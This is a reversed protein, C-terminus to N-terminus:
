RNDRVNGMNPTNVKRSKIAVALENLVNAVPGEVMALPVRLVLESEMLSFHQEADVGLQKLLKEAKEIDKFYLYYGPVGDRSTAQRIKSIMGKLEDLARRNEIEQTGREYQSAPTYRMANLIRNNVNINTSSTSFMEDITIDIARNQGLDFKIASVPKDSFTSNTSELSFQVNNQSLFNQLIKGMSESMPTIIGVKYNDVRVSESLKFIVDRIEPYSYKM